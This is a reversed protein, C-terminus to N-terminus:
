RAPLLGLKELTGALREMPLGMVNTYSGEIREVIRSGNDQIAYAGAKDLPDIADLYASRETADLPHMWVATTECFTIETDFARHIVSVGTIVEHQRGTLEALIREAERRDAPKGYVRDDRVVITDAGIVVAAPEVAAVAAAKRQANNMALVRPAAGSLIEDVGDPTIVRFPVGLTKILHARRPSQSALILAAPDPSM